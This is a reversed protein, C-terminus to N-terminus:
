LIQRRGLAVAVSAAHVFGDVDLLLEGAEGLVPDRLDDGLEVALLDLDGLQLALVDPVAVRVLVLEEQDDLALELEVDAARVAVPDDRQRGSLEVDHGPVYVRGNFVGPATEFGPASIRTKSGAVVRLM